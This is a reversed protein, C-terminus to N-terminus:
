LIYVCHNYELLQHCVRMVSDLGIWRDFLRTTLFGPSAFDYKFIKVAM